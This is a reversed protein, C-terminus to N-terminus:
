GIVPLRALAERIKEDPYEYDVLKGGLFDAYATLDFNGHGSLNFFITRQKGEEKCRVAENIAARIAHATEPAPIIGESKAFSIAADFVSTQGYSVAEIL